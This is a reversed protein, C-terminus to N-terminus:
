AVKELNRVIEDINPSKEFRIEWYTKAEIAGLHNRKAAEQLWYLGKTENMPVLDSTGDIMLQGLVWSADENRGKNILIELDKESLNMM